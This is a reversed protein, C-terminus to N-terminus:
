VYICIYMYVYLCIYMYFDSGANFITLAVTAKRGQSKPSTSEDSSFPTTQAKVMDLIMTRMHADAYDRPIVTEMLDALARGVTVYFLAPREVPGGAEAVFHLWAQRQGDDSSAFATKPLVALIKTCDAAFSM